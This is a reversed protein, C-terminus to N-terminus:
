ANGRCHNENAEGRNPIYVHWEERRGAVLIEFAKRLSLQAFIFAASMTPIQVENASELKRM